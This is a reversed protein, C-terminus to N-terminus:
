GLTVIMILSYSMYSMSYQLEQPFRASRAKAWEAFNKLAWKTNRDTNKPSFGKSLEALEQDDIFHQFRMDTSTPGHVAHPLSKDDASSIFSITPQQCCEQWEPLGLYFPNGGPCVADM